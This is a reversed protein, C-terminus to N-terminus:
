YNQLDEAQRELEIRRRHLEQLQQVEEPSGTPEEEGANAKRSSEGSEVNRASAALEALQRTLEGERRSFNAL